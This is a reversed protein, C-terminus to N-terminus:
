AAAGICSNQMAFIYRYEVYFANFSFEEDRDLSIKESLPKPLDPIEFDPAEIVMGGDQSRTIQLSADMDAFFRNRREMVVEDPHVSQEFLIGSEENTLFYEGNRYEM